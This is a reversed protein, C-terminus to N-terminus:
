KRRIAIRHVSLDGPHYTLTQTAENLSYTGDSVFVEGGRPYQLKPLFIETPSDISAEGKFEFVFRGSRYDFELFVPEGAIKMPYPRVFVKLARGGSNIDAPDKQQDRSFLSLDEDNWMDGHANTNDPTYNWLTYSLLNDELARFTRSFAREQDSFNGARYARKGNMDFPIGTEGILTPINGMREIAERRITGLLRKFVQRIKREGLLIHDTETDFNLSPVFTELVLTMGDYWHAAYVMHKIEGPQCEPSHTEPVQEFFIMKKEDISHVMDAVHHAFPLLYDQNFNVQHEKVHAFYDPQLLEPKGEDNVQWVGNALWVCQYGEKWLSVNGPHLLQEGTKREGWLDRAMVDVVQPFGSALQISQWPTPFLGIRLQGFKERLDHLGVYGSSPENLTDFGVVNPLGQLRQVVQKVAAIYHSQLYNQV